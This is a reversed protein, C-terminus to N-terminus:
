KIDICNNCAIIKKDILYVKKFKVKKNNIIFIQNENNWCIKCIKMKNVKRKNIIRDRNIVYEM